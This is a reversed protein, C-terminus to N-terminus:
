IQIDIKGVRISILSIYFVYKDRGGGAGLIRTGDIRKVQV